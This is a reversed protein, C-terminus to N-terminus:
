PRFLRLDIEDAMKQYGAVNLHLHDGSDYAPLLNAPNAPDRVAADLDIVADFKGSTRIWDNVMQRATEHATSFYMAGGFPLIPVGYARINRSHAKAVFKEYAAILNTAVAQDGSQGIDNVGALVILWKAGSQGLVDRDFRVLATPGLGGALVANGGIGENVVAVEATSFNTSLRRALDDPWRNNGDTTSGRGDTISDGLTIISASARGAMVDIGTLLYWHTTTAATPLDRAAVAEGVRIYSTARSGPHGTLTDPTKGLYMSVALDALPPLEFDIPDSVVVDGALITVGPLRQFTLARPTAPNIASGGASLAVQVANITVSNSGYANSFWARLRRGGISLHVFQRLTNGSLGPTPPLNAPETLQPACGWTAVWHGQTTDVIQPAGCASAVILWHALWLRSM